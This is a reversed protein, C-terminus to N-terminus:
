AAGEDPTPPAPPLIREESRPDWIGEPAPEGRIVAVEARILDMVDATLARLAERTPQQGSESAAPYVPELAHVEVTRRPFLRLRRTRGLIEQPGWQAVPVIPAGSMLALRAVGTKAQMPWWDPDRTITGEPYILVAEGDRLAEVADSLAAAGDREGRHVPIQNAGRVIWGIVPLRFISEKAMFRPIRGAKYVFHGLTFPDVWSLHNAAIIVGGTPPVFHQGRWRRKTFVRSLPRVVGVVFGMWPGLRPENRRSRSRRLSRRSRGLRSPQGAADPGAM